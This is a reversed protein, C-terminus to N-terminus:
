VLSWLQLDHLIISTHHCIYKTKCAAVTIVHFIQQATNRTGHLLSMTHPRVAPSVKSLPRHGGDMQKRLEACVEQHGHLEALVDATVGDQIAYTYTYTHLTFNTIYVDAQVVKFVFKTTLKIQM